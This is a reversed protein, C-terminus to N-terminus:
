LRVGLGAGSLCGGTANHEGLLILGSKRRLSNFHAHSTIAPVSLPPPPRLLTLILAEPGGSERRRGREEEQEHGGGHRQVRCARVVVSLMLEFLRRRGAWWSAGRCQHVNGGAERDTTKAGGGRGSGVVRRVCGGAIRVCIYIMRFSLLGACSIM